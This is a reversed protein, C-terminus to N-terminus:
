RRKAASRSRLEALQRAVQDDRIKQRDGHEPCLLTIGNPGNRKRRAPRPHTNMRGQHICLVCWDCPKHAGKYDLWKAEGGLINGQADTSLGTPDPLEQGNPVDFPLPSTTM